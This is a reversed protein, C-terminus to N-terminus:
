LRRLCTDDPDIAHAIRMGILTLQKVQAKTLPDLVLSRVMEVHGPASDVVKAWGADTLIALTYRGDTTDTCRRIWGRKELRGVVQSVRALSGEALAALDSIRVTRDPSESLAALVTYEFHSIGADRQLQADLAPMLRMLVRVLILWAQREESDLWRPQPTEM